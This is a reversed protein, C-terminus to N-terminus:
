DIGDDQNLRLKVPSIEINLRRRLTNSLYRIDNKTLKEPNDAELTLTIPNTNTQKIDRLIVEGAEQSPWSIETKLEMLTNSLKEPELTSNMEEYIDISTRFIAGLGRRTRGSTFLVPAYDLFYLRDNLHNLWNEENDEDVEDAKNVLIICGRYRDQILGAIRQDQSSVRKNWDLVLCVVDSYNIAELSGYVVDQETMSGVKNERILGGTDLLKFRNNEVEFSVSVYDRTTGPTESVMVRDYGLTSNFLTSKGTNPRGTLSIQILNEPSGEPVDSTDNLNEVLWDRIESINHNHLASVSVLEPLGLEYFDSKANELSVPPDAQNVVVLVSESVPYLKRAIERDLETLGQQANVVFLISESRQILSEVQQLVFSEDPAPPDNQYGATDLLTFQTDDWQVTETLRDRTIGPQDATIARSEDILQNFLTSKGVNPRGIIPVLTQNISSESTM